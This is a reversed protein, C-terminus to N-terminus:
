IAGTVHIWTMQSSCATRDIIEKPAHTCPQTPIHTDTASWMKHTLSCTHVVTHTYTETRRFDPRGHRWTYMFTHTHTCTLLDTYTYEHERAQWHTHIDTHRFAQIHTHTHVRAQVHAHGSPDEFSRGAAVLAPKTLPSALSFGCM